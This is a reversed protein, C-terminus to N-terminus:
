ITVVAINLVLWGAVCKFAGRVTVRTQFPKSIREWGTATFKTGTRGLTWSFGVGVPEGGSGASRSFQPAAFVYTDMM